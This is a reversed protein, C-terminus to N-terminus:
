GGGRPLLGGIAPKRDTRDLEAVARVCGATRGVIAAAPRLASGVRLVTALPAVLLLITPRM